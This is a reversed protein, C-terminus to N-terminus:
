VEIKIGVHNTMGSVGSELKTRIDTPISVKNHAKASVMVYTIEATAVQKKTQFNHFELTYTFSTNGLKQLQITIVLVEDFMVPAKWSVNVNVVQMNLGRNIMYKFEGWLARFYETLAVDIYEM